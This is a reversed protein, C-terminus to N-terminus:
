LREVKWSKDAQMVILTSFLNTAVLPAYVPRSLLDIRSGAHATALIKVGCWGAHILAECDEQKTIEDVAICEPGMTRIFCMIGDKKSCGTMVDTKPGTLFSHKGQTVPFLEGREDVVGVSGSDYESLNRILDRLLTTKGSGPKGIILISGKDKPINKAIGPFDRAARINLSTPSRIGTMHFNKVVADGCIGIRHGGVSTIYGNAITEAAWPSYQSAANIVYSLDEQTNVRDLYLSGSVTVLEPRLGIRLRLENLVGRGLEDVPQKMWAPLINLYEQWACIM